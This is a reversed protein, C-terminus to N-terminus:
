AKIGPVVIDVVIGHRSVAACHAAHWPGKAFADMCHYEREAESRPTIRVREVTHEVGLDVVWWPNNMQLTWM